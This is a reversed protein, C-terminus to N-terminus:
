SGSRAFTERKGGQFMEEVATSNAGARTFKLRMNPGERLAFLDNGYPIMEWQQPGFIWYLVGDKESVRREAGYSGAYSRLDQAALKVPNSRAAIEPMAWEIDALKMGTAKAKVQKMAELHAADLAKAAAVAIDPVIGNGEWSAKTVPHIATGVSISVAFGQPTGFINNRNGAGPTKTGVLTGLKFHKIHSAFEESASASQPGALVYLPATLKGTPVAQTRSESEPEGGLRYTMLKQDPDMFHSIIYRVTAPSGGRASRIDIIYADGGKLFSMAADLVKPSNVPDWLFVPSINMYRINGPLVKLEPIGYNSNAMMQAFFSNQPANGTGPNTRAAIDARAQDPNFSVSMHKDNTVAQMDQTMRDALVIPDTVNYRGSSLSSSIRSTIEGAKDPYVYYRKLLQNTEAVLSAVTEKTIQQAAAPVSIALALPLAFFRLV